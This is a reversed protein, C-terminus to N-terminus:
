FPGKDQMPPGDKWRREPDQDPPAGFRPRQPTAPPINEPNWVTWFSLCGLSWLLGLASGVIGCIWGAKTMGAGERDMQGQKMKALDSHGLGWGVLSLVLGIPGCPFSLMLGVIGLTLVVGGRHADIDRRGSRGGDPGEDTDPLRSLREGCRYCRRSDRHLSAGCNPCERRDDHDDARRPRGAEAPVERARTPEPMPPVPQSTGPSDDELSLKIEVAGRPGFPAAPAPPDSPPLQLPLDTAPGDTKPAAAEFVASCSSCKVTRTAPTQTGGAGGPPGLLNDPITLRAQCTPCDIIMPM